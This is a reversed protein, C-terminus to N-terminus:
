LAIKVLAFLGAAIITYAFAGVAIRALKEAVGHMYDEIAVQAEHMVHLTIVVLGLGTILAPVPRSFYAIVEDYTGGIGLGLTIVFLPVLPVLLISSVMMQWHHHTGNGSAGLGQARKRDTLYRM